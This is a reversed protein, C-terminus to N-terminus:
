TLVGVECSRALIWSFSALAMLFAWFIAASFFSVSLLFYAAIIACCIFFCASFCLFFALLIFWSIFLSHSICTTTWVEFSIGGVKKFTVVGLPSTPVKLSMFVVFFLNSLRLTVM